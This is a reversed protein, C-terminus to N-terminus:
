TGFEVYRDGIGIKSVDARINSGASLMRGYVHDCPCKSISDGRLPRGSGADPM